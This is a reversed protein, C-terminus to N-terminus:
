MNCASYVLLWYNTYIGGSHLRDVLPLRGTSSGSVEIKIPTPRLTGEPSLSISPAHPPLLGFGENHYKTENKIGKVHQLEPKPDPLNEEASETESGNAALSGCILSYM